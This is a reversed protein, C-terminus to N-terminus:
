AKLFNYTCYKKIKVKSLKKWAYIGQIDYIIELSGGILLVLGSINYSSASLGWLIIYIIEYGCWFYFQIISRHYCFCNGLLFLTTSIANLLAYSSGIVSLFFYYLCFGFFGFVVLKFILKNSVKSPKVVINESNKKWEMLSFVHMIIVAYALILEGYYKQKICLISYITYSIIDFIFNTWKGDKTYKSALMGFITSFFVLWAYLSTFHITLALCFIFGVGFIINSFNFYKVM